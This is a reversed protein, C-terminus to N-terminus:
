LRSLERQARDWDTEPSGPEGVQMRHLYIEYARRRIDEFTPAADTHVGNHGPKVERQIDLPAATAPNAAKGPSRPSKPATKQKM